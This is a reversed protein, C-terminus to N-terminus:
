FAIIAHMLNCRTQAVVVPTDYLMVYCLLWVRRGGIGVGRGVLDVGDLWRVKQWFVLQTFTNVLEKEGVGHESNAKM